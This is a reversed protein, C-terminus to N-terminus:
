DIWIGNGATPIGRSEPSGLYEGNCSEIYRVVVNMGQYNGISQWSYDFSLYDNVMFHECMYVGWQEKCSETKALNDADMNASGGWKGYFYPYGQNDYMLTYLPYPCVENSTDVVDDAVDDSTDDQTNDPQVQEVQGSQQNNNSQTDQNPQQTEDGPKEQTQKSTEEKTATEESVEESEVQTSEETTAETSEVVETEVEDKIDVVKSQVEQVPASETGEDKSAGCGALLMVSVLVLFLGKKM